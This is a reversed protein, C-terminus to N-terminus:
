TCSPSAALGWFSLTHCTHSHGEWPGGWRSCLGGFECGIRVSPGRAALADGPGASSRSPPQLRARCAWLQGAARSRPPEERSLQPGGELHHTVESSGPADRPGSLAEGLCSQDGAPERGLAVAVLWPCLPDQGQGEPPTPLADVPFLRQDRHGCQGDRSGVTEVRLTEMAARSMGWRARPPPGAPLPWATRDGPPPHLQQPPSPVVPLPTFKSGVGPAVTRQSPGRLTCHWLRPLIPPKWTRCGAPEAHPGGVRLPRLLKWQTCRGGGVRVLHRGSWSCRLAQTWLGPSPAGGVELSQGSTQLGM